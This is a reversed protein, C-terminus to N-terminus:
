LYDRLPGLTDANVARLAGKNLYEPLPGLTEDLGVWSRVRPPPPNVPRPQDGKLARRARIPPPLLSETGRVLAHM